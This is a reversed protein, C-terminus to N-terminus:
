QKLLMRRMKALPDPQFKEPHKKAVNAMANHWIELGEDTALLSMLMTYYSSNEKYCVQNAKSLTRYEREAEVADKFVTKDLNQKVWADINGSSLMEEGYTSFNLKELYIKQAIEMEDYSQSLIFKEFLSEVKIQLSDNNTINTDLSKQAYSAVSLFLVNLLVLIKKM